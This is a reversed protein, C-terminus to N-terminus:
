AILVRKSLTKLVLPDTIVAIPQHFAGVTNKGFPMDIGTKGGISSDVQALLTTPVQVIPVGRLYTAAAFGAVDGCVGGGVAVVVGSRTLDAASFDSLMKIYTETTKSLEGAEFVSYAVSFGALVLSEGVRKAYLPFTNTDAVVVASRGSVHGAVIEGVRDLIGPEIYINSKKGM